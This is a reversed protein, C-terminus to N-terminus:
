NGLASGEELLCKFFMNVWILLDAKGRLKQFEQRIAVIFTNNQINETYYSKKEM